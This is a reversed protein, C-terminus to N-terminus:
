SNVLEKNKDALQRTRIAIRWEDTFQDYEDVRSLVNGEALPLDFGHSRVFKYPGTESYVGDHEDGDFLQRIGDDFDGYVQGLVCYSTSGLALEKLSIKKYWGPEQDDLLAMGRAIEEEYM